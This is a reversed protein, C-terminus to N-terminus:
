TKRRKGEKGNLTYLDCGDDDLVDRERGIYAVLHGALRQYDAALGLLLHVLLIIHLLYQSFSQLFRPVNM